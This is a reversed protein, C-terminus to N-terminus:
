RIRKRGIIYIERSRKISASPKFLKCFSFMREYEKFIEQLNSFNLAKVICNGGFKLSLKIIDLISLLLEYIRTDDVDKVGTLKPCADSLIVDYKYKMIQKRTEESTIDGKIFIYREDRIKPEVIDVGIVKVNKYKNLIYQSWSGPSTGIDLVIINERLIKYKNNMEALKYVARSFFGEKKAKKYYYDRKRWEKWNM